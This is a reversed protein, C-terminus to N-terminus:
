RYTPGYEKIWADHKDGPEAKLINNLSGFFFSSPAPGPLNLLLSRRPKVIYFWIYATLLTLPILLLSETLM